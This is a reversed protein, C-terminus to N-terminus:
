EKPTPVGQLGDELRELLSRLEVKLNPLENCVIEWVLELDVDFYAHVIRHRLGIIRGWPIHAHHQRFEPPLRNAAEGIVELNRVVSDGTKEDHIFAARDFGIVYREIRGIRVLMDELLTRVPRRSM